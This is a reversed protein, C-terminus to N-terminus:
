AHMRISPDWTGGSLTIPIESVQFVVESNMASHSLLVTIIENDKEEFLLVPLDLIAYLVLM